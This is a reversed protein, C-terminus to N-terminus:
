RAPPSLRSSLEALDRGLAKWADQGLAALRQQGGHLRESLDPLRPWLYELREWLTEASAESLSLGCEPIELARTLALGKAHYALSLFPTGMRASLICGHMRMSITLSAARLWPCLDGPEFLAPTDLVGERHNMAARIEQGLGDDDQGPDFRGGSARMSLFVVHAGLESILRDCVQAFLSALRVSEVRAQRRASPIFKSPLLHAKYHGWRRPIVVVLPSSLDRPSESDSAPTRALRDLSSWLVPDVTRHLRAPDVGSAVCAQYSEEDRPYICHLRPLALKALRRGLASQFPGVGVGYAIAPKGVAHAFLVPWSSCCLFGGSTGDSYPHGGGHLFVDSHLIDWALKLWASALQSGKAVHHHCAIRVEPCLAELHELVATHIARDGLNNGAGDDCLVLRLERGLAAAEPSRLSRIEPKRSRQM